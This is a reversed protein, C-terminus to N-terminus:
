PNIGSQNTFDHSISTNLNARNKTLNGNCNLARNAYGHTDRKTVARSFLRSNAYGRQVSIILAKIKRFLSETIFYRLFITEYTLTM